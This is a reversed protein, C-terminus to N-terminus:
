IPSTEKWYRTIMCFFKLCSFNVIDNHMHKKSYNGKMRIFGKITQIASCISINEQFRAHNRM